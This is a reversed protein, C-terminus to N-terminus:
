NDMSLRSNSLRTVLPRTPLVPVVSSAVTQLRDGASGLLFAASPRTAAQNDWRLRSASLSTPEPCTRSRRSLVPAVPQRHFVAQLQEPLDVPAIAQQTAAPVVQRAVQSTPLLEAQDLAQARHRAAVQNEPDELDPALQTAPHAVLNALRPEM